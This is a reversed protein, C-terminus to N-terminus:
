ASMKRKLSTKQTPKPVPMQGGKGGTPENHIIRDYFIIARNWIAILNTLNERSPLKTFDKLSLEVRNAWLKLLERTQEDYHNMALERLERLFSIDMKIGGNTIFICYYIFGFFIDIM